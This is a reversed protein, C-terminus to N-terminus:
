TQFRLQEISWSECKSSSNGYAKHKQYIAKPSIPNHSLQRVIRIGSIQPKFGFMQLFFLHIYKSKITSFVFIFFFPRSHGM